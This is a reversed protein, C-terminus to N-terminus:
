LEGGGQHQCQLVNILDPSARVLGGPWGRHARRAAKKRDPSDVGGLLGVTRACVILCARTFPGPRVRVRHAVALAAATASAAAAIAPAAAAGAADAAGGRDGPAAM